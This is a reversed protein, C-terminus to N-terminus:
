RMQLQVIVYKRVTVITLRLPGVFSLWTSDSKMAQAEANICHRCTRAENSLVILIRQRLEGSRSKKMTLTRPEQEDNDQDRTPSKNSVVLRSCDVARAFHAGCLERRAVDVTLIGRRARQAV